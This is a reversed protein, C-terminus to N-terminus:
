LYQALSMKSLQAVALYSAQLQTQYQSAKSAAQATDVDKVGSLSNQLYTVYTTQQSAMSSLQGSTNSITEQLNSLDTVSQNAVGLSAQLATQLAATYSTSSIGLDALGGSSPATASTVNVSLDAQSGTSVKLAFGASTQVVSASVGTSGAATNIASAIDSLSETGSLSITAGGNISFDTAGFSLATTPTAATTSGTVTTAAANQIVGQMARLAEEMGQNNANVGYAVTQQTSIRVSQVNQDGQYYSTDSGGLDFTDSPYNALNVPATQAQTGSFLYSGNLQQNMQSALTQQLGKVATLLTSNDTSSLAASIKTQLSNVTTIMNGVASYMGQTRTGVTTADSAWSQAQSIEGQLNLMVNSSAGGLGAFDSSVLGSAEQVQTQALQSQVNLASSLAVTNMQLTSIRSM